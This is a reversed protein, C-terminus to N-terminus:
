SQLRFTAWPRSWTPKCWMNPRAGARPRGARARSRWGPRPWGAFVGMTERRVAEAAAKREASPDMGDALLSKAEDRKRRAQALTVHPYAGLSLLKEKDRFHYKLRWLRAGNPQVLLYLGGGDFLKRPKNGAKANRIATDTLAM